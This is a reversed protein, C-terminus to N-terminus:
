RKHLRVEYLRPWLKGTVFLREGVPDWAIGNLVNEDGTRVSDPLLGALDVWALVRGSAPHIRALYDTQWVNAWVEGEVYELENLRDVPGRDDHVQVRGTEALTGADRFYLTSTGDSMVFRSGDHTLGWGETPYSFTRKQEFTALDRVFGVGSTWTLQVLEDGAAAIGEGFYQPPLATSQLVEGTELRVKRLTSRGNLGTGEYLVGERWLLGQTFAEPDHPFRNVVEYTYLAPAGTTDPLVDEEEELPPASTSECASLLLAAPLLLWCRV